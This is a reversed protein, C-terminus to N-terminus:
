KKDAPSNSYTILSLKKTPQILIYILNILFLTLMTTDAGSDVLFWLNQWGWRAKIPIPIYPNFVKGFEIGKYQYPFTLVSKDM